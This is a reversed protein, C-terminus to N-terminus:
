FVIEEPRTVLRVGYECITSAEQAAKATAFAPGGFSPFMVFGLELLAHWFYRAGPMPSCPRNISLSTIKGNKVTFTIDEHVLHPTGERSELFVSHIGEILEPLDMKFNDLTQRVREIPISAQVNPDKDLPVFFLDYGM